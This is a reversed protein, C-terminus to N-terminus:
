LGISPLLVVVKEDIGGRDIHVVLRWRGAMGFSLRTRYTGDRLQAHDTNQGHDMDLMEWDISVDAAVAKGTEDFVSVYVDPDMSRPSPWLRLTAYGSALSVRGGNELPRMIGRDSALMTVGDEADTGTSPTAASATCGVLMTALLVAAIRM